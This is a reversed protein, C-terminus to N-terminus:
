EQEMLVTNKTMFWKCGDNVVTVCWEGANVRDDVMMTMVMILETMSRRDYGVMM